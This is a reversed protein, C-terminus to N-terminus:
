LPYSFDSTQPFSLQNSKENWNKKSTTEPYPRPKLWAVPVFPIFVIEFRTREIKNLPNLLM